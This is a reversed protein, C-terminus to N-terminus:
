HGAARENGAALRLDRSQALPVIKREEGPFARRLEEM